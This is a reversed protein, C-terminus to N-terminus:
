RKVDCSWDVRGVRGHALHRRYRGQLRPRIGTKWAVYERLEPSGAPQPYYAMHRAIEDGRSDMATQLAGILGDMPSTEPAPYAVAFDYEAHDVSNIPTDQSRESFLGEYSFSTSTATM